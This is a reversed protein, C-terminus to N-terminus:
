VQRFPQGRIGSIFTKAQTGSMGIRISGSEGAVGVNGIDINNSRLRCFFGM